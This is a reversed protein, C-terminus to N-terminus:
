RVRLVLLLIVALLVGVGLWLMRGEARLYHAWEGRAEEGMAEQLPGRSEGPTGGTKEERRLRLRAQATWNLLAFYLLFLALGGLGLLRAAIHSGFIWSGLAVGALALLFFPACGTVM